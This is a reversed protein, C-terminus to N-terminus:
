EIERGRVRVLVCQERARVRGEAGNRPEGHDAGRGLLRAEHGEDDVPHVRVIEARDEVLVADRDAGAMVARHRHHLEKPHRRSRAGREREVVREVLDVPEGGRDLARPPHECRRIPGM